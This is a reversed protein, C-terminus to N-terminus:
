AFLDITEPMQYVYIIELDPRPWAGSVLFPSMLTWSRRWRWRGWPSAKQGGRPWSRRGASRWHACRMACRHGEGSRARLRRGAPVKSTRPVSLIRRRGSSRGRNNRPKKQKLKSMPRFDSRCIRRLSLIFRDPSQQRAHCIGIHNGTEDRHTTGRKDSLRPHQSPRSGRCNRAHLSAM